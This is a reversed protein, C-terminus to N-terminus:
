DRNGILGYRTGTVMVCDKLFDGFDLEYGFRQRILSFLDLALHDSFIANIMPILEDGFQVKISESIGHGAKFLRSNDARHDAETGYLQNERSFEASTQQGDKKWKTGNVHM